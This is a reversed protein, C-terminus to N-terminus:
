NSWASDYWRLFHVASESGPPMYKVQAAVTRKLDSLSGDPLRLQATARITVISRGEVQLRDGPADVSRLFEELKGPTFPMVRRRAVVQGAAYPNLGVAILVPYPATNVDVRDRSGYVSLCDVLGLRRLLRPGQAGSEVGPGPVYTGYFIDPTVGPVLLLEEIEQLSAPSSPFSPGIDIQDNGRRRYGNIAAAIGQARYPEIGIAAMLRDLEEPPVGNVDLKGAEPLFEVRAQGVPFQYMVQTAYQPILRKDPMYVSWALELMAREVAGIGLYYARIEDVGNAARESEGRVTMSLTMGIAALAASLWLVALLASGRRGVGISRQGAPV